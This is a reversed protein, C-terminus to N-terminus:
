TAPDYEPYKEFQVRDEQKCLRAITKTTQGISPDTESGIVLLPVNAPKLGLRTRSLYQYVFKNTKWGSRLMEAASANQAAETESCEQGIHQYLPLAKDTLIDSVDFQPYVTKIGYALYLPLKLPLKYSLSSVPEYTDQLDPLRSIAISGLYNPDHTDGLNHV